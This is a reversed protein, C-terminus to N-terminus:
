PTGCGEVYEFEATEGNPFLAKTLRYKRSSHVIECKKMLYEMQWIQSLPDADTQVRMTHGECLNVKFPCDTIKLCHGCEIM